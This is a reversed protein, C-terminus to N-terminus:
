LNDDHLVTVMVISYPNGPKERKWIFRFGLVGMLTSEVIHADTKNKGIHESYRKRAHDSVIYRVEREVM